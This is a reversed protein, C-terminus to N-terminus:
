EVSAEFIYAEPKEVTMDKPSRSFLLRCGDITMMPQWEADESNIEPGANVPDQWPLNRDKRFSIWIDSSGHGGERRSTFFLYHGDPSVSAADATGDNVNAPLEEANAFDENKSRRKAVFITSTETDFKETRTFYLELGDASTYAWREFQQGNISEGLSHYDKWSADISERTATFINASEGPENHNIYLTLGDASIVGHNGPCENLKRVSQFPEAINERTAVYTGWNDRTSTFYLELGTASLCPTSNWVGAMNVPEPWKVADRFQLRSKSEGDSDDASLTTCPLLMLSIVSVTELLSGRHNM